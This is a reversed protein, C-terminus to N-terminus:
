FAKEPQASVEETHMNQSLKIFVLKDSRQTQPSSDNVYMLEEIVHKGQRPQKDGLKERKNM